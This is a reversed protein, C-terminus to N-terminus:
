PGRSRFSTYRDVYLTAARSGELQSQGHLHRLLGHQVQRGQRFHQFERKHLIQAHGDNHINQTPVSDLKDKRVLDYLGGAPHVGLVVSRLHVFKLPGATRAHM